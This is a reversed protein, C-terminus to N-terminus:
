TTIRYLVATTFYCLIILSMFKLMLSRLRGAEEGLKMYLLVMTMVSGLFLPTAAVRLTSLSYVATIGLSAIAALGIRRAIELTREAGLVVAITRYGAARDGEVDIATKIFERGLSAILSTVFLLLPIGVNLPDLSIGYLFSLSTTLSTAINGLIFTRKLVTNYLTGTLIAAIYICLSPILNRSLIVCATALAIGAALSSISLIWAERLTVLGTVLPAHPRNVKDEEINFIDNQTFLYIEASLASLYLLVAIILNFSQSTVLYTSVPVLGVVLGHEIRSLKLIAKVRDRLM